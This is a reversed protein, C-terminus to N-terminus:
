MGLAMLFNWNEERVYKNPIALYKGRLSLIFISRTQAIQMNNSRITEMRSICTTTRDSPIRDKKNRNRENRPVYNHLGSTTNQQQPFTSFLDRRLIEAMAYSTIKQNMATFVYNNLTSYYKAKKGKMFNREM